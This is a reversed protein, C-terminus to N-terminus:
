LLIHTADRRIPSTETATSVTMGSSLLRSAIYCSFSTLLFSHQELPKILFDDIKGIHGTNEVLRTLQSFSVGPEDCNDWVVATFSCYHPSHPRFTVEVLVPLVDRSPRGLNYCDSPMEADIVQLAPPAPSPLRGEPSSTATVRSGRYYLSHSKLSHRCSKPRSRCQHTSRQQLYHKRKKPM